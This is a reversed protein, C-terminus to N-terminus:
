GAPHEYAGLDFGGAQPRSTGLIDSRVGVDTGANRAPSGPQLRLDESSVFLPDANLNGTGPLPHSGSGPDFWLTHGIDMPSVGEGYPVLEGHALISNRLVLEANQVEIARRATDADPEHVLTHHEVTVRGGGIFLNTWPYGVIVNNALTPEAHYGLVMGISGTGPGLAPDLQEGVSARVLNAHIQGRTPADIWVGTGRNDELVNGHWSPLEFSEGYLTAFGARNGEFRNDEVTSTSAWGGYGMTTGYDSGMGGGSADDAWGNGLFLNDRVTPRATHSLVGATGANQLTNQEILPNADQGWAVEGYLEWFPGVDGPHRPSTPHNISIGISSVGGGDIINRRITPGSALVQVVAAEERAEGTLPSPPVRVTFGDFVTDRTEGEIFHVSADLTFVDGPAPPAEIITAAVVEPDGPDESRLTIRRGLLQVTETYTGPAVVVTDGDESAEIAAQITPHDAPVRLTRDSSPAPRQEPTLPLLLVEDSITNGQRISTATAADNIRSTDAELTVAPGTNGRIVNGSLQATAGKIVAVGGTWTGAHPTGNGQLVSDTLTLAAGSLAGVAGGENGTILTCHLTPAADQVGMVTPFWPVQAVGTPESWTGDIWQQLWEKGPDYGHWNDRIHSGTVTASSDSLLLMAGAFEAANGIVDVNRLQPDARDLVVVGGGSSHSLNDRVVSDVLLPSAGEGRIAVGGGFKVAANNEVILWSLTPSAENVWLGGGHNWRAGSAETDDLRLGRTLTFGHLVTSRPEGSTATVVVGQSNADIITNEPGDSSTVIIERGRLDLQETYTGPGVVIADGDRSADIAAQITRHDGPVSLVRAVGSVDWPAFSRLALANSLFTAMQARTVFGSPDYTGDGRGTTIGATRIAAIARAHTSDVRVDPFPAETLEPLALALANSLFTAMQARTVFGSPDYTGDGRGTTIGATRIAAIARAHTSDVRVDPFPAETLEPLALALANSLFTAMQARTVFGSPDYTGDSRGSTVGAELIATIARAHTDAVSVDPFGTCYELTTALQSADAAPSMAAVEPQPASEGGSAAATVATPPIILLVALLLAGLGSRPYSPTIPRHQM